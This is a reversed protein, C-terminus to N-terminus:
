FVTETDSNDAVAEPYQIRGISDVLVQTPAKEEAGDVMSSSNGM